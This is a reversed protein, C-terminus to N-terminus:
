APPLEKNEKFHATKKNQKKLKTLFFISAKSSCVMKEKIKNTKILCLITKHISVQWRGVKIWIRFIWM